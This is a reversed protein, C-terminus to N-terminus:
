FICGVADRLTGNNDNIMIDEPPMAQTIPPNIENFSPILDVAKEANNREQMHQRIEGIINKVSFVM